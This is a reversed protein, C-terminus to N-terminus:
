NGINLTLVIDTILLLIQVIEQNDRFPKGTLWPSYPIKKKYPYKKSCGWIGLFTKFKRWFIHVRLVKENWLFVFDSFFDLM